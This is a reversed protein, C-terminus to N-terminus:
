EEPKPPFRRLRAVFWMEISVGMVIAIIVYAFITKPAPKELIIYYWASISKQAGADNNSGDWVAFAIPILKGIEFQIDGKVDDTQLSRKLVVHWRGNQYVGKGMINQSESTQVTVNKFGKANLEYVEGPETESSEAVPGSDEGWYAKWTWLNVAGSKDGMAFYPKKLSEPIQTPFQLSVGDRFIEEQRNTADDWELLFAIEDNNYLAKIMIADASPAWLRPEAIIQGALPIEVPIANKWNEDAADLPLEDIDVLKVKVVVDSAMDKAISKVYHTINWRDEDSLIELYSGMPTENFGTSVTRYIDETTNGGKFLWGKTLDRARYPMDWETQLAVTLPGNGRGDEGHCEFCKTERFLDQGKLISDPTSAIINGTSFMKLSDNKKFQENFTKVYYLVKWREAESITYWFPMATGEIGSTIIRFLDEDTPVSGFTTSRVKYENRVFNRPKPFMTKAAPGDGGGEIGHCYWCRKEYIRKGEAIVEQTESLKAPVEHKYVRFLHSAQAYVDASTVFIGACVGALGLGIVKKKVSYRMTTTQKEEM